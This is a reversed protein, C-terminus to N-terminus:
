LDSLLQAKKEAFESDSLIGEGHLSALERLRESISTTRVGSEGSSSGDVVQATELTATQVKPTKGLVNLGQSELVAGIANHSDAPMAALGNNVENTLVYIKKATTVTLTSVRTKANVVNAIGSVAASVASGKMASTGGKIISNVVNAVSDMQVLSSSEENKVIGSQFDIDLLREFPTTPLIKKAIGNSRDGEAIRVYGGEYLELTSTGFVGSTVLQGAAVKYNAQEQNLAARESKREESRQNTFGVLKSWSSNEKAM